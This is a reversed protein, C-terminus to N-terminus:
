STSISFVKVPQTEVANDKVTFTAGPDGAVAFADTVTCGSQVVGVPVISLKEDPCNIKLLQDALYPTNATILNAYTFLNNYYGNNPIFGNIPFFADHGHFTVILSPKYFGTSKLLDLPNKNTGYQVHFINQNSNFKEYFSWQFLWSLSFSNQRKYYSIIAKIKKLNKLGIILFKKVRLIKNKPINYNEVIITNLINNKILIDKYLSNEIDLLKVILIKVDYGLKLATLVQALIFTESLHPFETIKFIITKKQEM